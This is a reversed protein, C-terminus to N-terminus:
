VHRAKASCRGRGALQPFKLDDSGHHDTAGQKSSALTAYPAGHRPGEYELDDRVDHDQRVHDGLVENGRHLACNDYNRHERVAECAIASSLPVVIHLLFMLMSVCFARISADATARLRASGSPAATACSRSTVMATEM